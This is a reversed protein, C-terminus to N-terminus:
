GAAWPLRSPYSRHSVRGGSRAIVQESRTVLGFQIIQARPKAIGFFREVADTAAFDIGHHDFAGKALLDVGDRVRVAGIAQEDLLHFFASDGDQVCAQDNIAIVGKRRQESLAGFLDASRPKLLVEQL